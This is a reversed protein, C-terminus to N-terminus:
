IENQKIVLRLEMGLVDAIKDVIDLTPSVQEREIRTISNVSVDALESLHPQTIKLQKRRQRIAKGISNGM